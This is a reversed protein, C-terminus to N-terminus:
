ELSRPVSSFEPDVWSMSIFKRYLPILTLIQLVFLLALSFTLWVAGHRVSARDFFLCLALVILIMVFAQLGLGVRAMSSDAKSSSLFRLKHIRDLFIGRSSFFRQLTWTAVVTILLMQALVAWVWPDNLDPPAVLARLLVSHYVGLVMFLHVPYLWLSRNASARYLASVYQRRNLGTLLLEEIVPHRRISRIALAGDLQFLLPFWGMQSYIMGALYRPVPLLVLAVVALAVLGQLVYQRRSGGTEHFASAILRAAPDTPTFFRRRRTGRRGLIKGEAPKRIQRPLLWQALAMALLSLVGGIAAAPGWHDVGLTSADIERAITLFNDIPHGTFDSAWSVTFYMVEFGFTLSLATSPRLSVTSCLMGVACMLWASLLFLGTRLVVVPIAVGGMFAMIALPPVTVVILTAAQIYAGAFKAWYVDSGRFDALLLLELTGEQKERTVLSATTLPIWLCVVCVQFFVSVSQIVTSAANFLEGADHWFLSAGAIGLFLLGVPVLRLVFVYRNKAQRDLERYLLPFELTPFVAPPKM